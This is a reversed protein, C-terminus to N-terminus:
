NSGWKRLVSEKASTRGYNDKKSIDFGAHGDPSTKGLIRSTIFALGDRTGRLAYLLPNFIVALMLEGKAVILYMIMIGLVTLIAQQAEPWFHDGNSWGFRGGWGFWGGGGADGGGGVEERQKIEKNWKEFESKKGGLAGELAKRAREEKRNDSFLCSFRGNCTLKQQLSSWTQNVNDHLTSSTYQSRSSEPRTSPLKWLTPNPASLNLVQAM